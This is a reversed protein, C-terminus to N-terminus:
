NNKKIWKKIIPALKNKNIESGKGNPSNLWKMLEKKGKSSNCSGCCIALDGLVAPNKKWTENEIHEISEKSGKL